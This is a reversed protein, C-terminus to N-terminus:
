LESTAKCVAVLIENKRWFSPTIPPNHRAWLADGCPEYSTSALANYLESEHEQYLSRSWGGRYVIVAMTAAPQATVSIIKSTPAPITALDFSSPMVFSVIWSNAPTDPSQLVPATMAIKTASANDGSIFNFLPRFASNSANKFDGSVNVSALLHDDYRRIEIGNLEELTEYGLSELAWAPEVTSFLVIILAATRIINM